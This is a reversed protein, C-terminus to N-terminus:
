ALMAALTKSLEIHERSDYITDDHLIGMLRALQKKLFKGNPVAQVFEGFADELTTQETTVPPTTVPPTSSSPPTVQAEEESEDPEHVLPASAVVVTNDEEEEEDEGVFQEGNPEGHSEAIPPEASKLVASFYEQIAQVKKKKLCRILRTFNKPLSKGDFQNKNEQINMARDQHNDEQSSCPNFRVETQVICTELNSAWNGRASSMCIDPPEILGILQGNRVLKYSGLFGFSEEGLHEENYPGVYGSAGIGGETAKLSPDKPNEPDFLVTDERLGTHVTYEGVKHYGTLGVTMKKIERSFRGGGAHPVEMMEGGDRWIFRDREEQPSYYHEVVEVQVGTYFKSGRDFYNYLKLKVDNVLTRCLHNRYNMSVDDRGFIIGPSDLPNSPSQLFSEELIGCLADNKRFEITTGHPVPREGNFVVKEEETMLRTTVMGTWVGEAHIRAWPVGIRLYDGGNVRTYITTEQRNGLLSLSPKAGVGSVGRSKDSAHNENHLAFMREADDSSMGFGNDIMRVTDSFVSFVITKKYDRELPVKDMSDLSNAILEGLCKAPTFGRRSFGKLYGREDIRGIQM